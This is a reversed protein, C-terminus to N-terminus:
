QWNSVSFSVSSFLVYLFVRLGGVLWGFFRDWFWVFVFSGRYGLVWFFFAWVWFDIGGM